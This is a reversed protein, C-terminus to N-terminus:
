RGGQVQQHLSVEHLEAPLVSPLIGRWPLGVSKSLPERRSRWGRRTEGSIAWSTTSSITALALELALGLVAVRGLHIGVVGLALAFGLAFALALLAHVEIRISNPLALALTGVPSRARHIGVSGRSVVERSPAKAWWPCPM